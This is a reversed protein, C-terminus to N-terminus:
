GIKKQKKRYIIVSIIISLEYLVIMPVALFLQTFIDPGPSLVAALVFIFFIVYRRNKRLFKPTILGMRTLFYTVLPIEFVLGFPLLFSIIFSVYKSVSIM